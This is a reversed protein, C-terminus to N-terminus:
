LLGLNRFVSHGGPQHKSAKSFMELWKQYGLIPLALVEIRVFSEFEKLRSMFVAFGATGDLLSAM